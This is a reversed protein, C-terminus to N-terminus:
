ALINLSNVLPNSQRQYLDNFATKLEQQTTDLQEDYSRNFFEQAKMYFATFDQLSQASKQELPNVGDGFMLSAFVNSRNRNLEMIADKAREKLEEFSTKQEENLSSHVKEFPSVFSENRMNKLDNTFSIIDKVYDPLKDQDASRLGNIDNRYFSNVIGIQTRFEDASMNKDLGKLRGMYSVDGEIHEQHRSVEAILEKTANKSTLLDKDINELANKFTKEIDISDYSAFRDTKTTQADVFSQVKKANIKISEDIGIAKNFDQSFHGNKDVDFGLVKQSEDQTKEEEKAKVQATDASTPNYGYSGYGYISNVNM